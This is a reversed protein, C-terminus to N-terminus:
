KKLWVTTLDQNTYHNSGIKWGQVTKLYPIIRYWWLVPYQYAKTDMAYKEIDAVLTKRKAPDTEARLQDILGDFTADSYRNYNGTQWNNSKQAIQKTTWGNLYSTPDPDSNNTFMEIDSWFHNAGDPSTNTFFTAAPVSKLEVSFGAKEWNTKMIAQTAQRVANSIGVHEDKIAAIVDDSMGYTARLAFEDTMEDHVYIAGTETGSLQTAKTVIMDLVTELDLTSNITRSVEGLARMEEVSQALERSRAQVEHTRQEVKQELGAYSEQLRGAMDNFQNALGELEDGTRIAIRQSLDGSGIRAAGAQLARIPGVMRRALFIGALMAFFLAAALVWALRHLAAYLPENAEEYPLEVFMLWGIPSVRVHATLVDRGQINTAQQVPEDGAAAERAAKVQALRSMDTNRLVLSIDPHAILRGEGDVVYAYGRQGVKIQSVVDLILKLNVEAITVGGEKGRHAVAMTLYPESEKHFHVTSFYVRNAMAEVFAGRGTHQDVGSPQHAGAQREL